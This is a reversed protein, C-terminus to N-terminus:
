DREKKSKLVAGSHANVDYDYEFGGKKFEIEYVMVGDERDLECKLDRVDQEGFGAHALATRIAAQRGVYGDNAPYGVTQALVVRQGDGLKLARACADYDLYARAVTSLREKACFLYVNQMVAGAHIGAYRMVDDGSAKMGRAGDHVYFLNVPAQCAFPQMGAAARHDGPNVLRLLNAKADYVYVGSPLMVYVDIDQVNRGTPATRRGDDARNIGNAAWLLSSLTQVSLERGNDFDRASRRQSLAQMLPIGGNTVPRPLPIDGANVCVAITAALAVILKKM